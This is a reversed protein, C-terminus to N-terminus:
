KELAPVSTTGKVTAVLRDRLDWQSSIDSHLSQMTIASTLQAITWGFIGIGIIMVLFAMMRGVWSRPVIDGYGVTTMTVLVYWYAQFIGPFYSTSIHKHGKEVWWFVHGCIIIFLGIYAFAKFVIPSYISKVSEALSFKTKNLVMIRLGSDLYHHSFDVIKERENTITICSLAVDATGEVLNNFIGKLDTEHYTFELGLEKAIEEWLEIDFGSYKTNESMVCPPTIEVAVMLTKEKSQVPHTIGFILVCLAFVFVSYTGRNNKREGM